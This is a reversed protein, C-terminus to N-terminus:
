FLGGGLLRALSNIDDETAEEYDEDSTTVSSNNDKSDSVGFMAKLPAQTLEIEFKIHRNTKLILDEVQPITYEM